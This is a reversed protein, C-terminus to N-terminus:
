RRSTAFQNRRLRRCHFYAGIASIAGLALFVLSAQRQVMDSSLLHLCAIVICLVAGAGGSKPSNLFDWLGGTNM